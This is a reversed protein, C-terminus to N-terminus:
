NVVKAPPVTSFFTPDKEITITKGYDATKGYEVGPPYVVNRLLVRDRHHNM